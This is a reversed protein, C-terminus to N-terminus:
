FSNAKFFPCSLESYLGRSVAFMVDIAAECVGQQGVGKHGALPVSPAMCVQEAAKKLEEGEGQAQETEKGGGGGVRVCVCVCM